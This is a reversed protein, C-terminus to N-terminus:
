RATTRRPPKRIAGTGGMRNGGGSPTCANTTANVVTSAPSDGDANFAFVRYFYQTNCTLGTNAYTVTDAALNGSVDAWSGTGDPSREVRFGTENAVNDWDVTIQTQSNATASPNGPADPPVVPANGPEVVMTFVRNDTPTGTVTVADPDDTDLASNKRSIGMFSDTSFDGTNKVIETYGTSWASVSPM